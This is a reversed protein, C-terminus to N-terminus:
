RQITDLLAGVKGACRRRRREARFACAPRVSSWCTEDAVRTSSSAQNPRATAAVHSAPRDPADIITPFERRVLGELYDRARLRRLSREDASLAATAQRRPARERSNNAVGGGLARPTKTTIKPSEPSGRCFEGSRELFARGQRTRFVDWAEPRLRRRYRRDARGLIRHITTSSCNTTSVFAARAAELLARLNRDASRRTTDDLGTRPRSAGRLSGQIRLRRWLSEPGAIETRASRSEQRPL